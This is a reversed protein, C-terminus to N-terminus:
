ARRNTEDVMALINRLPTNRFVDDSLAIIHRYGKTEEKIRCVDARVDEETGLLLTELPTNGKTVINKDLQERAWRLSPVNGVPSETLSEFVEPMLENYFGLELFKRAHGCTHWLVFCDSGERWRAFTDASDNKVWQRFYDPSTYETGEVCYFLYDFGAKKYTALRKQKLKVSAENLEAMSDPWDSLNYYLEEQNTLNFGGPGTWTGLVGKDGVAGVAERGQEIAADEDYDLLRRTHWIARKVDEETEIFNKIVNVNAKTEAIGVLDGYPTSIVTQRRHSGDTRTYTVKPADNQDNPRFEVAALFTPDYGCVKAM